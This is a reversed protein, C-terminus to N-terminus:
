ELWSNIEYIKALDGLADVNEYYIPISKGLNTVVDCHITGAQIAVDSILIPEKGWLELVDGLKLDPTKGLDIFMQDMCITGRVPYFKSTKRSYAKAMKTLRPYGDAYGIPLVGIKTPQDAIWLHGYSVGEGPLVPKINSLEVELRMAPVTGLVEPRLLNDDSAFGYCYFGPRVMDFNYEPSLILSYSNALHLLGTDIGQFRLRERFVLAFDVLKSSDEDLPEDALAFHSWIGKIRIQSKRAADSLAEIVPELDEPRFGDRGFALDLKVHIDIPRGLYDSLRQTRALVEFNGVSYDIDLDVLQELDTNTSILWTLIKTLEPTIGAKRLRIAEFPQATGLYEVGASLFALASEVLGHGYANAKVVGLLKAGSLERAKLANHKIAALDVVIRGPYRARSNM